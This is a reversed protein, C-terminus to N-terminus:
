AARQAAHAVCMKIYGVCSRLGGSASWEDTKMHRSWRHWVRGGVTMTSGIARISGGDTRTIADAFWFMDPHRDPYGGPLRILLDSHGPELGHALEFANIVVCVHNDEAFVSFSEYTSELYARDPLPLLESSM